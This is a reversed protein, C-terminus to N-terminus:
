VSIGKLLTTELQFVLSDLQYHSPRQDQPLTYLWENVIKRAMRNLQIKQNMCTNEM